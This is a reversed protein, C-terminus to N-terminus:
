LCFRSMIYKGAAEGSKEPYFLYEAIASEISVHYKEPNDRM